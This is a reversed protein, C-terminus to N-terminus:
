PRLCMTHTAFIRAGRNGGGKHPLSLSLPPSLAGLAVESALAVAPQMQRSKYSRLRSGSTASNYGEGQGEGVLPSPVSHCQEAWGGPLMRTNTRLHTCSRASAPSHVSLTARRSPFM